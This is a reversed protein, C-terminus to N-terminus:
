DYQRQCNSIGCDSEPIGRRGSRLGAGGFRRPTAAANAIFPTGTNLIDDVWRIRLSRRGMTVM